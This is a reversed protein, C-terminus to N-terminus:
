CGSYGGHGVIGKVFSRAPADCIFSETRIGMVNGDVLIGEDTLKRLKRHLPIGDINFQQKIVQYGDGSPKLGDKIKILIRKELGFYAM